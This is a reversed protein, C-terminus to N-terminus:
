RMLTTILQVVQPNGAINILNSIVTTTNLAGSIFKGWLGSAKIVKEKEEQPAAQIAILLHALDKPDTDPPLGFQQMIGAHKLINIGQGGNNATYIGDAELEVDGEIRIGDGGNGISTVGILKIVM